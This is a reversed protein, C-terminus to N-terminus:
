SVLLIRAYLFLIFELMKPKFYMKYSYVDVKFTKFKGSNAGKKPIPKEHM